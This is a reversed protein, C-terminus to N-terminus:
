AKRRRGFGLGALGLGILALTAPEPVGDAINFEARVFNEGQFGLGPVLFTHAPGAVGGTVYSYSGFFEDNTTDPRTIRLLIEDAGAPPAFPDSGLVAITNADFDQLIYRIEPLGAATNFRVQLQLLQHAGAGSNDNFRVSYQPNSLGSPTTLSFIGTLQLTDDSKLGADPNTPDINTLLRARVEIRAQDLANASVAGNATDLRLLGGSEATNPITGFVNYTAAGFPGSPPVVGDGFTDNFFAAGNRVISFQDVDVFFAYGTMSWLSAILTITPASIGSFFHRRM